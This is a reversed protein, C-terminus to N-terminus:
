SPAGEWRKRGGVAEWYATLMAVVKGEDRMQDAFWKSEGKGKSLARLRDLARKDNDCWITKGSASVAAKCARCKKEKKEPAAGATADQDKAKSGPKRGRKAKGPPAISLEAQSGEMQATKCEVPEDDSEGDKGM